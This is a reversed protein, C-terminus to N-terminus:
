TPRNWGGVADALSEAAAPGWSGPEYPHRDGECGLVPDVVRWAAEVVDQRAFMTTDGAIADGLLREYPSMEDATKVQVVSLEKQEGQMKEGPAKIRAGIAIRMDPSLRFRVYNGMRPPTETFVVQPANKLEVIVETCTTALSKGACIYFPVGAWRWSDIHLTLAAFTPVHSDKAVGPEDRYGRFQGCV